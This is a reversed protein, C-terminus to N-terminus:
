NLNITPATINCNGTSDVTTTGGVTASLNGGTEVSAKGDTVKVDLDGKDINVDVNGETVNITIGQQGNTTIVLNSNDTDDDQISITTNKFKLEVNKPHPALNRGYQYISPKAIADTLNHFRNNLPIVDAEEVSVLWEEMTRMSFELLMIDGQSPTDDEESFIPFSLLGGGASPFIVPVKYIIPMSTGGSNEDFRQRLIPRVDVCQESPYYAIVRAPLSTFINEQNKSILTKIQDYLNFRGM